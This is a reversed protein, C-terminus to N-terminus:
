TKYGSANETKRTTHWCNTLMHVKNIATNMLIHAPQSRSKLLNKPFFFFFDTIFSRGQTNEWTSMTFIMDGIKHEDDAQSAPSCFFITEGTSVSSRTRKLNTELYFEWMHATATTHNMNPLSWFQESKTEKSTGVKFM